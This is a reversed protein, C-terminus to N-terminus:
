AGPRVSRSKARSLVALLAIRIARHAPSRSLIDKHVRPACVEAQHDSEGFCCGADASNISVLNGRSDRTTHFRQSTRSLIANNADRVVESTDDFRNTVAGLIQNPGDRLYHKDLM